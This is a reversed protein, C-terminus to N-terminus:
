ADGTSRSERWVAVALLAWGVLFALGGFPTVMGWRTVRTLALLYLSGSFLVIGVGFATAAGRAGAGRVRSAAFLALAHLLHYLVGTEYWERAKPFEDFSERLAHAGFAGFVVGLAGFIAGLAFFTKM